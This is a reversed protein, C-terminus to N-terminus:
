EDKREKELYAQCLIYLANGRMNPNDEKSPHFQSLIKNIAEEVVPSQDPTLQFQMHKLHASQSLQKRQLYEVITETGMASFAQLTYSSDPLISLIDQELIETLVHRILAARLGLNDEGHVNNLAQSFLRANADDLDVVVCPVTEYNIQRLINLRQSGSIVEYNEDSMKRVVLNEVLGYRSISEKLHNLMEEDMSNANWPAERLKALPLDTTIM